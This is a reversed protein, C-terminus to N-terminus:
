NYVPCQLTPQARFDICQTNCKVFRWMHPGSDFIRMSRGKIIALSKCQSWQCSKQVPRYRRGDLLTTALAYTHAGATYKVLRVRCPRWAARPQQSRATASPAVSVIADQRDSLIFDRFLANTNRKLRFVAHLGREAHAHLLAFSYYGRDYVVVDGRALAALHALAARREDAHAHLAFDTPLSALREVTGLVGQWLQVFGEDAQPRSPPQRSPAAARPGDQLIARWDPHLPCVWVSKPTKAPVGGMAGRGATEGICQWNAAKYCTGAHWM